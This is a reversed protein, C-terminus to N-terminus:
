SRMTSFKNQICRM